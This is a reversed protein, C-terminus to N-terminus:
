KGQGDAYKPPLLFVYFLIRGINAPPFRPSTSLKAHFENSKENRFKESGKERM